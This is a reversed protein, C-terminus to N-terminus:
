FQTVMISIVERAQKFFIYSHRGSNITLSFELYVKIIPMDQPLAPTFLYPLFSAPLDNEFSLAVSSNHQKMKILVYVWAEQFHM